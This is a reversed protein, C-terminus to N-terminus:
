KSNVKLEASSESGTDKENSAVNEPCSIVEDTWKWDYKAPSPAVRYWPVGWRVSKLGADGILQLDEQWHDYHGM